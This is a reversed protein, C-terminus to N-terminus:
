KRKKRNPMARKRAKHSMNKWKKRAKALAKRQKASCAM